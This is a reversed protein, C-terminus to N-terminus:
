IPFNLKVDNFPPNWSLRVEGTQLGFEKLVLTLKGSDELKNGNWTAPFALLFTRGGTLGFTRDMSYNELPIEEGENTQLSIFEDLGFMLFNLRDFFDSNGYVLDSGQLPRIHLSFYLFDHYSDLEIQIRQKLTKQTSEGVAGLSNKYNSLEESILVEAPLFNSSFQFDGNRTERLYPSQPGRILRAFEAPDELTQQCGFLFICTLWFCFLKIKHLSM